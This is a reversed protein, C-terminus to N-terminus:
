RCNQSPVKSICSKAQPGELIGIRPLSLHLKRHVKIKKARKTFNDKKM